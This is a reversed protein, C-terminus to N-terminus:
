KQEIILKEIVVRDGSIIRVLYNGAALSSVDFSISSEGASIRYCGVVRGLMDSIQVDAGDTSGDLAITVFDDAPNPYVVM